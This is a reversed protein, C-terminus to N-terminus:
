CYRKTAFLAVSLLLYCYRKKQFASSSFKGTNKLICSITATNTYTKYVINEDYSKIVM